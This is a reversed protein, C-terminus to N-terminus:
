TFAWRMMLLTVPPTEKPEAVRDVGVPSARVRAGVTEGARGVLVQAEADSRVELSLDHDLDVGDFPQSCLQGRRLPLAVGDRHPGVRVGVLVASPLYWRVWPM